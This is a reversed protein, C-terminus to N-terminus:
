PRPDVFALTQALSSKRATIRSSVKVGASFVSIARPSAAPIWSM